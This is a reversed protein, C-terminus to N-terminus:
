HTTNYYKLLKGKKNTITYEKYIDEFREIFKTINYGSFYPTGKSGLIPMLFWIPQISVIIFPVMPEAIPTNTLILRILM